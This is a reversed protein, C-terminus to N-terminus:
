FWWWLLLLLLRGTKLKFSMGQTTYTLMVPLAFLFPLPMKFRPCYSHPGPASSSVSAQSSSACFARPQRVQTPSKKDQLNPRVSRFGKAALSSYTADGNLVEPNRANYSRWAKILPFCIPCLFM